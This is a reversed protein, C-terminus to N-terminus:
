VVNSIMKLCYKTSLVTKNNEKSERAGAGARPLDERLGPLVKSPVLPVRPLPVACFIPTRYMTQTKFWMTKPGKGSPGKGFPGKTGEWSRCFTFTVMLVTLERDKQQTYIYIYIYIYM